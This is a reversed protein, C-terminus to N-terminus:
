FCGPDASIQRSSAAICCEQFRHVTQMSVAFSIVHVHLRGAVHRFLSQVIDFRSTLNNLGHLGCNLRHLTKTVYDLSKKSFYRGGYM